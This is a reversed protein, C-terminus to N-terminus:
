ALSSTPVAVWEGALKPGLPSMGVPVWLQDLMLFNESQDRRLVTNRLLPGFCLGRGSDASLGYTQNSLTALYGM